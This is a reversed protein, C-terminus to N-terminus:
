AQCALIGALDQVLYTQPIDGIELQQFSGCPLKEHCRFNAEVTRCCELKVTYYAQM